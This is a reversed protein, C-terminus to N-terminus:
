TKIGLVEGLVKKLPKLMEPSEIEMVHEVVWKNDGAAMADSVKEGLLRLFAYSPGKDGYPCEAYERARENLRDIFAQRYEGPGLLEQQNEEMTKVLHQAVANIFKTRDEESLQGYVIRDAIQLLFAIFEAVVTIAVTDAGFRFGEKEMHKFTSQAIKWVNFGVVGARDELTRAGKNKWKARIVVAM